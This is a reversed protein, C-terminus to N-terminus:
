GRAKWRLDNGELMIFPVSEPIQHAKLFEYDDIWVLRSTSGLAKIAQDLFGEMTLAERPGAANYTGGRREELLKLDFAVLDRVDVMQVPDSKKGPALTLGGKALRQPWYPFRDSTDGPGVIYSPRVVISGKGFAARVIEECQAKQVGFSESGDKPDVMTTHPMTTEDLGRKLYPYYVGTSSTFLYQLVKGKLLETSLRVWEPNTASDDIVADWTKGELAELQGNRDGILQIVEPPLEPKRRGRTFTTVKHGRSVALRVLHPGIYGTGGLILINMPSPLAGWALDPLASQAILASGSAVAATNLFQRRTTMGLIEMM